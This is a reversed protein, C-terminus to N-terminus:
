FDFGHKFRRGLLGRRLRKRRGLDRFGNRFDGQGRRLAAGGPDLVFDVVLHQRQEELFADVRIRSMPPQQAVPANAGSLASVARVSCRARCVSFPLARIAPAIPQPSSSCEISSRTSWAIAMFDTCDAVM